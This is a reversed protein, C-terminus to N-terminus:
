RSCKVVEGHAEPDVERESFSIELIRLYPVMDSFTPRAPLMSTGIRCAEADLAMLSSATGVASGLSTLIFQNNRQLGGGKQSLAQLSPFM